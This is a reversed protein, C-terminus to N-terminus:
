GGGRTPETMGFGTASNGAALPRLLQLSRPHPIQKEIGVTGLNLIELPRFGDWSHEKPPRLKLESMHRASKKRGRESGRVRRGSLWNKERGRESRGANGVLAAGGFVAVRSFDGPGPVWNAPAFSLTAAPASPVCCQLDLFRGHGGHRLSGDGWITRAESRYFHNYSRWRVDPLEVDCEDCVDGLRDGASGARKGEM